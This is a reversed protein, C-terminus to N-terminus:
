ESYKTSEQINVEYNLLKDPVFTCGDSIDFHGNDVSLLLYLEYLITIVINKRCGVWLMLFCQMKTAYCQSRDLM